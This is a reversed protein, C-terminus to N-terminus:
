DSDRPTTTRNLTHESLRATPEILARYPLRVAWAPLNPHREEHAVGARVHLKGATSSDATRALSHRRRGARRLWCRTM